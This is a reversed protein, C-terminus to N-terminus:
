LASKYTCAVMIWTACVSEAVSYVRARLALRVFDGRCSVIQQCISSKLAARMARSANVHLVQLPYGQM